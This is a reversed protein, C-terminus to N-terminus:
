AKKKSAKWAAKAERVRELAGPGDVDAITPWDAAKEEWGPPTVGLRRGLVAVFIRAKEEGFGPLARLRDFLEEGSDVGEWVSEARGDYHEVLYECLAHVRKGMSGPFRHLAPKESFRAAFEDPDMAAVAAADLRGSLRERLQWPAKFAREMPVQQDLLMGVLLALPERALFDDAETDGTFHLTVTM